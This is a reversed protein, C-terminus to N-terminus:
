DPFSPADQLAREYLDEDINRGTVVLVIPEPLGPLHALAALAAGAAGEVRIGAAAFARVADAIERESVRVVGDVCQRMTEVAYPIAVRVALGDAFTRMHGCAVARGAEYSLAMVPAEKAVAGILRVVPARQRLVRGIGGILAGNGVPVVVSGLNGALEDLIEGAISGYGDYQAPEAGDEFFPVNQRAAFARALEKAEDLDRGELHLRAGLSAILDLKSRSSGRPAYVTAQLGVRAGAWATAAGHNGTSATVVGTAGRARYQELTPLAGRWKFAGLEHRDERKLYLRRGQRISPPALEISSGSGERSTM